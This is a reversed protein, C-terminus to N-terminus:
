TLAKIASLGPRVAKFRIQLDNSYRSSEYNQASHNQPLKHPDRLVVSRDVATKTM